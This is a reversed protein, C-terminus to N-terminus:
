SPAKRKIECSKLAELLDGATYKGCLRPSDVVGRAIVGMSAYRDSLQRIAMRIELDTM